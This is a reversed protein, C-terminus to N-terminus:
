SKNGGTIFNIDEDRVSSNPFDLDNKESKENVTNILEQQLKFVIEDLKLVERLRDIEQMGEPLPQSLMKTRCRVWAAEFDRSNFSAM